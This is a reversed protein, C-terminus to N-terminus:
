ERDPRLQRGASWAMGALALLWVAAGARVLAPMDALLAGLLLGAAVLGAVYYLAAQGAASLSAGAREPAPALSPRSLVDPLAVAFLFLAVGFRALAMAEAAEMGRWHRIAAFLLLVGLASWPMRRVPAFAPLGAADSRKMWGPLGAWLAVGGLLALGASWGVRADAASAGAVSAGYAAALVGLAAVSAPLLVRASKVGAADGELLDWLLVLPMFFLFAGALLHVLIAQPTFLGFGGQHSELVLMAGLSMTVLLGLGPLMAAGHRPAGAQRRWQAVLGRAIALVIGAPVLYHGGLNALLTHRGMFGWALLVLGVSHVALVVWVLPTWPARRGYLTPLAWEQLAYFGGLVGGVTILHVVAPLAPHGFGALMAAPQWLMLGMAAAVAAWASWTFMRIQAAESGSLPM